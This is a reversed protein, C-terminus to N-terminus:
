KNEMKNKKTQSLCHIAWVAKSSGMYTLSTKGQLPEEQQRGLAQVVPTYWWM